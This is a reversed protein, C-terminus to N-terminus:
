ITEQRNKYAHNLIAEAMILDEPTTVKINNYSGKSLYVKINEKECLQSEDTANADGGHKRLVEKIIKTQYCQPTQAIKLESRNLTKNVFNGNAQKITDKVDVAAVACKHLMAANIADKIIEGTVFPRAGDHVCVIESKESVNNVGSIVSLLRTSGGKAFMVPKNKIHCLGDIKGEATVVIIENIEEAKAFAEVTLVLMPIGNIKLMHKPGGMRTGSGGAVIVASCFPKIIANM